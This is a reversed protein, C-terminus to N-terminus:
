KSSTTLTSVIREVATGASLVTGFRLQDEWDAAGDLQILEYEQGLEELRGRLADYSERTDSTIVVVRRAPFRPLALLDLRELADRLCDRITRGLLENAREDETTWAWGPDNRQLVAIHLARLNALYERGSVVPDWLVLTDFDRELRDTCAALSAGLRLGVASLSALGEMERLESAATGVDGCWGDWTGQNSEGASDGTCSYDFRLAPLGSGALRAGLQCFVRHSRQYEHGVPYCLLVGNGGPVHGEAVHHAGFLPHDSSGFYFPVIAM